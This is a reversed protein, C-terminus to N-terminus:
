GVINRSFCEDRTQSNCIFIFGNTSEPLELESKYVAPQSNSGRAADFTPSSKIMDNKGTNSWVNAVGVPLSAPEELEYFKKESNNAHNACRSSKSADEHTSCGLSSTGGFHSEFDQEDLDFIDIMLERSLMPSGFEPAVLHYKDLIETNNPEQKGDWSSLNNNNIHKEYGDSEDALDVSDLMSFSTNMATVAKNVQDPTYGLSLLANEADDVNNSRSDNGPLNGPQRYLAPPPTVAVHTEFSYACNLHLPVNYAVRATFSALNENMIVRGNLSETREDLCRWENLQVLQMASYEIMYMVLVLDGIIMITMWLNDSFIVHTKM